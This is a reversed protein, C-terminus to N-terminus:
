VMKLPLNVTQLLILVFLYLLIFACILYVTKEPVYILYDFTFYCQM